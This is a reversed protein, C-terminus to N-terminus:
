DRGKLFRRGSLFEDKPFLDTNVDTLTTRDDEPGVLHRVSRQITALLMDPAIGAREYHGRVVDADFPV